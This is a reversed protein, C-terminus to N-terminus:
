PRMTALLAGVEELTAQSATGGAARTSLTGCAVAVALAERPPQGALWASIYGADFSDGAGTTDVVDITPAKMRHREGDPAWSRGGESGCKAVVICGRSTISNAAADLDDTSAIAALEAANPLFVDTHDLVEDVGAWREAPDWNTDISTTCGRQRTAAFLRGLGAALEPMLFYSTAHLHSGAPITTPDLLGATVQEISGLHTLIARDDPNSLIVSLGTTALPDIGLLTTDVGRRTLEDIMFHGYPDDGVIGIMHTDIGLRAAGCAMITASGGVVLDADDVLQEAQGFRPTVDRGRLILDPNADGIVYLRPSASM